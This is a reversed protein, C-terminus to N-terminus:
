TKTVKRPKRRIHFYNNGESSKNFKKLKLAKYTNKTCAFTGCYSGLCSCVDIIVEDNFVRLNERLFEIEQKKTNM